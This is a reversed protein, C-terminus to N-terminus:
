DGRIFEVRQKNNTQKNTQQKKNRTEQKKNRTEQKNEKVQPTAAPALAELPGYGWFKHECRACQAQV